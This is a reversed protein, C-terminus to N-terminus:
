KVYNEPLIAFPANPDEPLTVSLREGTEWDYVVLRIAFEAPRPGRPVGIVFTDAIIEGPRWSSTPYGVGKTLVQDHQEVRFGSQDLMQISGSYNIDTLSLSEWYLKVEMSGEGPYRNLDYGRLRFTEGFVLDTQYHTFLLRWESVPRGASLTDFRKIPTLLLFVAVVFLCINIIVVNISQHSLQKERRYIWYFAMMLLPISSWILYGNNYWARFMHQSSLDNISLWNAWYNM